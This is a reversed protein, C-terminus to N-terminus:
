SNVFWSVPIFPKQSDKALQKPKTIAIAKKGAMVNDPGCAAKLAAAFYPRAQNVAADNRSDIGQFACLVELCRGEAGQKDMHVVTGIVTGVKLKEDNTELIEAEVIFLVAGKRQSSPKFSMKKCEVRYTRDENFKIGGQQIQAQAILDYNIPDPQQMVQQAPQQAFGPTAQPIQDFPNM